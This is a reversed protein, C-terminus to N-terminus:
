YVPEMYQHQYLEQIKVEHPYPRHQLYVSGGDERYFYIADTLAESWELMKVKVGSKCYPCAPSAQSSELSIINKRGRLLIDRVEGM